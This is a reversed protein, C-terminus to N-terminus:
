TGPREPLRPGPGREHPHRARRPVLGRLRLPPGVVRAARRGRQPPLLRLRQARAGHAAGEPSQFVEGGFGFDTVERTGCNPCTLLSPCPPRRHLHQRRPLLRASLPSVRVSRTTRQLRALARDSLFASRERGDVARERQEVREGLQRRRRAHRRARAACAVDVLARDRAQEAREHGPAEDIAVLRRRAVAQAQPQDGVRVGHQGAEVHPRDRPRM